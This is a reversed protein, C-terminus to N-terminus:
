AESSASSARSKAAAGTVQEVVNFRQFRVRHGEYADLFADVAGASVTLEHQRDQSCYGLKFQFHNGRAHAFIPKSAPSIPPNETPLRRIPIDPVGLFLPNLDHSFLALHVLTNHFFVEVHSFRQVVDAEVEVGFADRSSAATGNSPGAASNGPDQLACIIPACETGVCAPTFSAAPDLASLPPRRGWARPPSVAPPARDPGALRQKM